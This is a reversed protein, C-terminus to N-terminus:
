TLVRDLARPGIKISKKATNQTDSFTTRAAADTVRPKLASQGTKANTNESHRGTWPCPGGNGQWGLVSRNRRLM